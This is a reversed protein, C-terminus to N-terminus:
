RALPEPEPEASLGLGPGDAARGEGDCPGGLGLRLSTLRPLSPGFAVALFAAELFTDVSLMANYSAM